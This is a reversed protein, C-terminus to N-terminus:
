QGYVGYERTVRAMARVNEVRAEDPIGTAGDMIFGGDKGVIDILKRCYSEVEEPSGSVLLPAPVNGQLCVRDGLAQKARFIDTHEFKYVAKARPIDAIVELRSQYQGEFFPFPTMGAEILALMLQRLGPWYFTKFQELSMFGDAGKHLPIFIRPNGARRAAAIAWRTVIPLVKDLMRLLKDSNRYMDLMIGRTGRFYDGIFDFPANVIAGFEPPFGLAAMEAAFAAARDRLQKALSGAKVLARGARVMAESDLIAPASLMRLYHLEALCPLMRLPKLAGSIRPLYTRLMFDSPDFLYDDYEEAKMHEGEVFQFSHERALGHGPWRFQRSDFAEMLHGLTTKYYPNAFLDPQFDLTYKKWAAGARDYDYMAERATLGCYNTPFFTVSPLFPVRDPVRLAVADEMRKLRQRYIEQPQTGQKLLDETM